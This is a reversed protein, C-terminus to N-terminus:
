SRRGRLLNLVLLVLAVVILLHIWSGVNFIFGLLWLVVVIGLITWLMEIVELPHPITRGIGDAAHEISM